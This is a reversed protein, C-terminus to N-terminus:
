KYFLGVHMINYTFLRAGASGGNLINDNEDRYIDPVIATMSVTLEALMADVYEEPEPEPAIPQTGDGFQCM